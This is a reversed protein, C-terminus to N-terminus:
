YAIKKQVLGPELAIKALLDAIRPGSHGDGYISTTESHTSLFAEDELLRRVVAAIEDADYGVDIVNGARERGAQRTGVNVFPLGFLPAEIIGSSSNGIMVDAASMVSLYLERGINAYGRLWPEARYEDIVDMMARGGADSNPYVVVTQVGLEDLAKLTTRMQDAAHEIETTVPHQTLLVLPEKPDFGLRRSVEERTPYPGTVIEDLGAAGVVYIHDPNEGLKRVREGSADTAVLHIHSLKTIAHRISEDVTGSVEGGHLHAVPINMHAGCIAAALMEGRDGTIMIIDPGLRELAQSMGIIALGVGRAMSAGTDSSLVMDVTADVSFGDTRIEDITHGYEHCLHMGTVLLELELEPHDQMAALVSRIIGYEARTGTIAAIRRPM